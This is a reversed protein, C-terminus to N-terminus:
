ISETMAEDLLIDDVRKEQEALRARLEQNDFWLRSATETIQSNQRLLSRLSTIVLPEVGCRELTDIYRKCNIRLEDSKRTM